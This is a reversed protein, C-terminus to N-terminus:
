EDGMGELYGFWKMRARSIMERIDANRVFVNWRVGVISRLMGNGFADLRREEPITVNICNRRVSAGATRPCQIDKNQDGPKYGEQGM